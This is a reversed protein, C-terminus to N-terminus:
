NGSLSVAASLTRPSPTDTGTTRQSPRWRKDGRTPRSAISAAAQDALRPGHDIDIARFLAGGDHACHLRAIGSRLQPHAPRRMREAQAKPQPAIIQRALGVQDKWLVANRQKHVATKPVTMIARATRAHRGGVGRVPRRFDGAIARAVGCGDRRQFRSAPTCRRDPLALRLFSFDQASEERSSDRRRGKTSQGSLNLTTRRVALHGSPSMALRM